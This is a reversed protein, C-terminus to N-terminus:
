KRRKTKRTKRTKKTKKTKRTKKTKKTKRTKRTKRKKNNGGFSRREFVGGTEFTQTDENIKEMVARIPHGGYETIMFNIFHDKLELATLNVIEGHKEGDDDLYLTNWKKIVETYIQFFIKLKKYTENTSHEKETLLGTAVAGLLTFIREFVGKKCSETNNGRESYTYLCDSRLMRIYQEIFNDSQKSV